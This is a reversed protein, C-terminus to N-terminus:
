GHRSITYWARHQTDLSESIISASDKCWSSLTCHHRHCNVQECSREGNGYRDPPLALSDRIEKPLCCVTSCYNQILIRVMTYFTGIVQGRSEKAWMEWWQGCEVSRRGKPDKLKAYKKESRVM